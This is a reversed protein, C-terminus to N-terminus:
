MIQIQNELYRASHLLQPICQTRQRFVLLNAPELGAEPKASEIFAARQSLARLAAPLTNWLQLLTTPELGVPRRLAAPRTAWSALQGAERGSPQLNLDEWAWSHLATTAWVEWRGWMEGVRRTVLSPTEGWGGNTLTPRCPCLASTGEFGRGRWMGTIDSLIQALMVGHGIYPCILLVQGKGFEYFM